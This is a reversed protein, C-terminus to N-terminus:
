NEGGYVQARAKRLDEGNYKSRGAAAAFGEALARTQLHKPKGGPEEIFDERQEGAVAYRAKPFVGAPLAALDSARLCGLTRLTDAPREEASWRGERQGEDLMAEFDSAAHTAASAEFAEVKATLDTITTARAESTALLAKISAEIDDPRCDLHTALTAKIADSM